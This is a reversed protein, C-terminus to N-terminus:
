KSEKHKRHEKAVRRVRQARARELRGLRGDHDRVMVTLDAVAKNQKTDLEIQAKNVKGQRFWLLLSVAGLGLDVYTKLEPPLFEM